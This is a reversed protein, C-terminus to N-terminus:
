CRQHTTRKLWNINYIHDVNVRLNYMMDFLMSYIQFMNFIKFLCPPVCKATIYLYKFPNSLLKIPFIEILVRQMIKQLISTSIKDLEIM